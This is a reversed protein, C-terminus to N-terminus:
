AAELAARRYPGRGGPLRRHENKCDACWTARGDPRTRDRHYRGLSKWRGCRPCSKGAAM